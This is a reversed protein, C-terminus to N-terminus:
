EYSLVKIKNDDVPLKLYGIAGPETSIKQKMDGISDVTDPGQGIGSFILRDWIRRFQHPFMNLKLKTFERHIPDNDPLVFVQIKTGDPWRTKRMAFIARVEAITFKKELVSSNVFIEISSNADNLDDACLNYAPLFLCVCFLFSCNHKDFSWYNHMSLIM